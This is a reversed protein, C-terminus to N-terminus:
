FQVGGGSEDVGRRGQGATKERGTEKWECNDYAGGTVAAFESNKELM